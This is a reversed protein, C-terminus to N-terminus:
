RTNRRIMNFCLPKTDDVRVAGSSGGGGGGSSNYLPRSERFTGNRYYIIKVITVCNTFTLAYLTCLIIKEKIICEM